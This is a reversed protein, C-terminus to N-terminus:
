YKSESVWDRYHKGDRRWQEGKGTMIDIMRDITGDTWDSLKGINTHPRMLLINLKQYSDEQSWPIYLRDRDNAFTEPFSRYAPFLVNCGLTDAESVTNSV